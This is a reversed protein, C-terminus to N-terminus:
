DVKISSTINIRIGIFAFNIEELSAPAVGTSLYGGTVGGNAKIVCPIQFQYLLSLEGGFGGESLLASTSLLPGHYREWHIFLSYGLGGLAVTRTVDEGETASPNGGNVYIFGGKLLPGMAIGKGSSGFEFRPSAVILPGVAGPNEIGEIGWPPVYFDGQVGLDLTELGNNTARAEKCLCFCAIMSMLFLTKRCM